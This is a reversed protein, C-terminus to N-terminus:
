GAPGLDLGVGPVGLLGPEDACVEDRGVGDVLEFHELGVGEVGGEVVFLEAEAFGDAHVGHADEELVLEPGLIGFAELAAEVGEEGDGGFVVDAGQEDEEVGAPLGVWVETGLVRGNGADVVGAPDLTGTGFFEGVGGVLRLEFGVDFADDSGEGVVVADEAPVDPVLGVVAVVGGGGALGGVLVGEDGGKEGPGEGPGARDVGGLGEGAADPGAIPAVGGLQTGDGFDLEFLGVDDGEVVVAPGFLKFGADEFELAVVAGDNARLVHGAASAAGEVVAEGDGFLVVDAGDVPAEDGAFGLGVEGPVGPLFGVDEGLGGDPEVLDEALVVGGVALVFDVEDALEGAAACGLWSRYATSLRLRQNEEM